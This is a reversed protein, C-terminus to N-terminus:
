IPNNYYDAIYINESKDVYVAQPHNLEAITAPGGDRSYCGGAGGGALSGNGAVTTIIGTSNDIKRIVNFFNDTIYLNGSSDLALGDPNGFEAATALGGDGTNGTRGNGAITNIIGTSYLVKRVRIHYFDSIYINGYKDVALGYPADLNAATAQGGDGLGSTGGGAITNIIGSQSYIFSFHFIFFSFIFIVIIRKKNKM